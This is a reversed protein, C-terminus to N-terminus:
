APKFDTLIAISGEKDKFSEQFCDEIRWINEMLQKFIEEDYNPYRVYLALYKYDIEPDKYVELVLKADPFYERTKIAMEKLLNIVDPFECLYDMIEEYGQIDINVNIQLFELVEIVDDILPVSGFRQSTFLPILRESYFTPISIGERWRAPNRESRPKSLEISSSSPKLEKGGIIEQSFSQNLM